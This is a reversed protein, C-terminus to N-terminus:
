PYCLLIWRERSNIFDNKLELKMNLLLYVFTHEELYFNIQKQSLRRGQSKADLKMLDQFKTDLDYFNRIKRFADFFDSHSLYIQFWSSFSFASDIQMKKYNKKVLNKIGHM